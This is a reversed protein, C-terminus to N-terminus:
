TKLNKLNMKTAGAVFTMISGNGRNTHFLDRLVQRVECHMLTTKHLFAKKM